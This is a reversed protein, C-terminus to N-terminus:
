RWGGGPGRAQVRAKGKGDGVANPRLSSRQQEVSGSCKSQPAKTPRGSNLISASVSETKKRSAGSHRTAAESCGGALVDAAARHVEDGHLSAFSASLDVLDDDLGSGMSQHHNVNTAVPMLVRPQAGVRRSAAAATATAEVGRGSISPTSLPVQVVVSPAAGNGLKKSQVGAAVTKNTKASSCAASAPRPKAALAATARPFYAAASASARVSETAAAKSAPATKATKTATGTVKSKAKSASKTGKKNTAVRKKPEAHTSPTEAVSDSTFDGIANHAGVTTGPRGSNQLASDMPSHDSEELESEDVFDNGDGAEASSDSEDDHNGNRNDVELDRSTEVEPANLCVVKETAVPAVAATSEERDQDRSSRFHGSGPRSNERLHATSWSSPMSANTSYSLNAPPLPPAQYQPPPQPPSYALHHAHENLSWWNSPAPQQQPLRQHQQQQQQQLPPQEMLQPPAVPRPWPQSRHQQGFFAASYDSAVAAPRQNPNGHETSSTVTAQHVTPPTTTTPPVPTPVAAAAEQGELYALLRQASISGSADADFHTAFLAELASNPIEAETIALASRFLEQAAHQAAVRGHTQTQLLDVWTLGAGRYSAACWRARVLAAIDVTLPVTTSVALNGNDGGNTSSNPCATINESGDNSRSHSDYAGALRKSASVPSIRQRTRPGPNPSLQEKVDHDGHYQYSRAHPLPARPASMHSSSSSSSPPLPPPFPVSPMMAANVAAAADVAGQAPPPPPMPHHQSLRLLAADQEAVLQQLARMSADGEGAEESNIEREEDDDNHTEGSRHNNHHDIRHSATSNAVSQKARAAAERRRNRESLAREANAAREAVAALPEQSAGNVENDAAHGVDRQPQFKFTHHQDRQDEELQQQQSDPKMRQLEATVQATLTALEAAAAVRAAEEKTEAAAAAARAEERARRAQQRASELEVELATRAQEAQEARLVAAGLKAEARRRESRLAQSAADEAARRSASAQSADNVQARHLEAAERRLSELERKAAQERALLTSNELTKADLAARMDQFAACNARLADAEARHAAAAAQAKKRDREMNDYAECLATEAGKLKAAEEAVLIQLRSIETSLDLSSAASDAVEPEQKYPQQELQQQQHRQEHEHHQPEQLQHIQQSHHPQQLQQQHQQQQQQLQQQQQQQQQLMHEDQQRKEREHQQQQRSWEHQWYKIQEIENHANEANREQESNLRDEIHRHGSNLEGLQVPKSPTSNRKDPTYELVLPRSVPDRELFNGLEALESTQQAILRAVIDDEFSDDM